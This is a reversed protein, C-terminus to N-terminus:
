ERPSSRSTTRKYTHLRMSLTPQNRHHQCRASATSGPPSSQCRRRSSGRPRRAIVPICRPPPPPSRSCSRGNIPPMRRTEKERPPLREWAVDASADALPAGVLGADLLRDPREEERRQDGRRQLRDRRLDRRRRALDCPRRRDEARQRTPQQRSSPEGGRRPIRAPLGQERPSRARVALRPQPLLGLSDLQCASRDRARLLHERLHGARSPAM